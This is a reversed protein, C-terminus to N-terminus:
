ARPRAPLWRRGMLVVGLGMLAVSLLMWPAGPSHKGRLVIAPQRTVELLTVPPGAALAEARGQVLFARGGAATRVAVVPQPGWHGGAPLVREVWLTGGSLRCPQGPTIRCTATGDSLVALEIAGQEALLLMEAAGGRTLPRNYAVHETWPEGEDRRLQVTALVSRPSGDPHQDTDLAELRAQLGPWGEPLPTWDGQLTVSGREGGGLGGVLHALLGVVFAVHMLSAAYTGPSRLGARWKRAVARLTCLATNAGYLTLVALLLYLWTHWPSPEDFFARLDDGRIGASAGDKTRVLVLSGIALLLVTAQGCVVGLGQSALWDLRGRRPESPM